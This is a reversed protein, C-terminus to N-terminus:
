PKKKRLLSILDGVLVVPYIFIAIMLVYLFMGFYYLLIFLGVLNLVLDLGIKPKAYYVERYFFYMMYVGIAAAILYIVYDWWKLKVEKKLTPPLLLMKWLYSFINYRSEQLLICPYFILVRLWNPFSM